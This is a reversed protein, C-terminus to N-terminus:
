WTGVYLGVIKQTNQIRTVLLDINGDMEIRTNHGSAANFAPHNSPLVEYRRIPLRFNHKSLDLVTRGSCLMGAVSATEQLHVMRKLATQLDARSLRAMELIAMPTYDWRDLAVHVVPHPILLHSAAVNCFKEIYPEADLEDGGFHNVISEEIGCDSLMVHAIEHMGCFRVREVSQNYNITIIPFFAKYTLATNYPHYSVAIDLKDALIRYDTEYGYMRHKKQVYFIFEHLLDYM